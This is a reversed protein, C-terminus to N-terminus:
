LPAFRAHTDSTEKILIKFLYHTIFSKPCNIIIIFKLAVHTPVHVAYVTQKHAISHPMQVFILLRVWASNICQNIPNFYLQSILISACRLHTYVKLLCIFKSLGIFSPKIKPPFTPLLKVYCKTLKSLKYYCFSDM